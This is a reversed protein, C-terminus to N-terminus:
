KSRGFAPKWDNAVWVIPVGSYIRNNNCSRVEGHVEIAKCSGLMSGDWVSYMLSPTGGEEKFNKQDWFFSVVLLLLFLAMFWNFPRLPDRTRYRM